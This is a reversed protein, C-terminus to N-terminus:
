IVAKLFGLGDVRDFLHSTALRERARHMWMMHCEPAMEQLVKLTELEVQTRNELHKRIDTFNENNRKRDEQIDKLLQKMEPDFTGESLSAAIVNLDGAVQSL